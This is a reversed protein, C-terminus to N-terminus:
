VILYCYKWSILSLRIDEVPVQLKWSPESDHSQFQNPYKSMFYKMQEETNMHNLKLRKQSEQSTQNPSQSQILFINTSFLKVPEVYRLWECEGHGWFFTWLKLKSHDVVPGIKMNDKGNNKTYTLNWDM